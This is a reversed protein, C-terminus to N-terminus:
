CNRPRNVDHEGIQVAERSSAAGAIIDASEDLSRRQHLEFAVGGEAAATNSANARGQRRCPQSRCGHQDFAAGKKATGRDHCHVSHQAPKRFHATADPEGV